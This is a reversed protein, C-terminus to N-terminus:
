SENAQMSGWLKVIEIFTKDSVLGDVYLKAYPYLGNERLTSKVNKFQDVNM